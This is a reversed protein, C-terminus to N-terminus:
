KSPVFSYAWGRWVYLVSQSSNTLNRDVYLSFIMDTELGIGRLRKLTEVWNFGNGSWSDGELVPWGGLENLIDTLPKLGRDEVSSQNLCSSFFQKALRVAKLENPQIKENLMDVLEIQVKRSLIEFPDLRGDIPETNNVFSGCAFQYFNDCPNVSENMKSKMEAADTVCRATDCTSQNAARAQRTISKTNGDSPLKKKM